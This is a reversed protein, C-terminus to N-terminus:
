MKRLDQTFVTLSLLTHSTLDESSNKCYPNAAVHSTINVELKNYKCM